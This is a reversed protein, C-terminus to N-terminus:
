RGALVSKRWGDDLPGVWDAALEPDAGESLEAFPPVVDSPPLAAFSAAVDDPIRELDLVTYQGWVGPGAKALQQEPTLALDAVVMAGAAHTANAPVALFSANGLSGGTLPLVRTSAPFTGDAVLADLTAPGYTMTFSVQDGAFLEELQTVDRPYTDGGRWLSPALDALQAWLENTLQAGVADKPDAPVKEPGGAVDYLAQRVFASGTFDPPAPYTFRGPNARAWDFLETLSAPPEDVDASDYALVFQAKHWPSECGEVPTGFDNLLLPDAPDLYQASPLRGAWGCAWADAQLGTRFNDGNVWVLDIAGDDTGAQQETLIRNIADGTDAIPVRRLAVGAEAAAPALVDDVYDNGLEDGGWMWLSVEQGDAEALVDDWGATGAAFGAAASSTSAGPDAATTSSCAALSLMALGLLGVRLRSVWGARTTRKRM